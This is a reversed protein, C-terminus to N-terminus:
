KANAIRNKLWANLCNFYPTAYKLNWTRGGHPYRTMKAYMSALYDLSEGSVTDTEVGEDWGLGDCSYDCTVAWMDDTYPLGPAPEITCTLRVGDRNVATRVFKTKM